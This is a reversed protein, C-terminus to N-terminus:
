LVYYNKLLPSKDLWTSRFTCMPKVDFRIEEAFFIGDMMIMIFVADDKTKKYLIKNGFNKVKIKRRFHSPSVSEKWYRNHHNESDPLVKM